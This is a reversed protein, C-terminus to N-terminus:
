KKNLSELVKELEASHQDPRVSRNIYAIKGQPDIVFTQRKAFLFTDAGYAKAISHSADSLLLFPLNFKAVFAKHSEVSDYSIGYVTTKLNRFATFRDRLGCAEKTCGPTDDKPYFYLVIPGKGLQESLHITSGDSAAATFDPAIDGVTLGAAAYTTGVALGVAVAVASFKTKM